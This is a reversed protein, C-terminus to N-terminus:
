HRLCLQTRFYNEFGESMGQTQVSITASGPGSDIIFTNEGKITPIELNSFVRTEGEAIPSDMFILKSDSNHLLLAKIDMLNTIMSLQIM